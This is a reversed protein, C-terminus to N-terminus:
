KVNSDILTVRTGECAVSSSVELERWPGAKGEVSILPDIQKDPRLVNFPWSPRRLREHVLSGLWIPTAPTDHARELAYGTPWFRLVDREDRGERARTFVLVSPQGNDLKPLVPLTTAIPDPAVLMLLSRASFQTGEIWGRESLQARIQDLSAAWQVTIPERRDGSMDSRYCAFTKWLSDTWQAETVVNLPHSQQDPPMSTVPNFTIQALVSAGLVLLLVAPMLPHSTPREPNRWVATLAVVAVWIAAFAAGGVADSFSFRGFYLGAFAVAVVITTSLTAVLVSQIKGVRRALVFALFGYVIASAAVHNSPFMYVDAGAYSPPAHRVTLQIAFILLQSFAAAALWYAVSLWRREYIMFATITIVVAALTPVSGFTALGSMVGDAWTSHISQLFRYVSVDVQVLPDGSAVGKFVSFFVAAFLLVLISIGAVVGMAPREPDLADAVFRAVRGDHCRAWSVLRQRSAITWAHARWLVIRTLHFSLWGIAVLIAIVAVLRFSVAGALQLSAGFVVGPLIHAPAWLLASLLNMLYFRTPTMGLMGAVVPVIARVPAIFRAFVVSRAGHKKFYTKGAELIKPHTSFPWMKVIMGRYRRGLWYSTGDGTIAGAIACVFLWGLNLTGTGALAGALFMATSGPVFTGIVAVAELFAALFVVALTWGANGGLLHLLHLYAHEM